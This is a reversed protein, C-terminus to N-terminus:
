ILNARELLRCLMGAVQDRCIVEWPKIELVSPDLLEEQYCYALSPVAWEACTTYDSFQALADRIQDDTMSTELGCLEAARATMVAAEQRTITCAPSFTGEGTGNVLGYQWASGVYAAFWSDAPVDSFQDTTERPLGLARVVAACFEARTMRGLPDFRGDGTGNLIGYSALTEIAQQEANGSVDSFTVADSLLSPQTVAPDKGPLGFAPESKETEEATVDSMDYIGTQGLAARRVATLVCFAQETAMLVSGTGTQTHRFGGGDIAYDLLADVLTNGNKVFREDELPLNLACLALIIQSVSESTEEGWTSFGGDAEQLDSVCTLARDVADSVQEQSTYPALAQLVMGTVDPDAAGGSLSWGGDTEQQDLLYTVYNERSAQTEGEPADPVEYGGCDLALLAFAAGNVGQGTVADYDGLPALLDYGGVDRPDKGLATLALVVRAYETYKRSSLVGGCDRVMQALDVYYDEWYGEPVSVGSRALGLVTWEGGVSGYRPAPVTETLYAATQTFAQEAQDPLAAAAARGAAGWLLLCALVASIVRKGM